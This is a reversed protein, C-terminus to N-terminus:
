SCQNLTEQVIANSKNTSAQSKPRRSFRAPVIMHSRYRRWRGPSMGVMRTFTRTFAAQDAFGAQGAIDALPERTETLLEKSREIRRQVIWRHASVGFSTKFSRAFHSISFGCERALHSLHLRAAVNLNLLETVRRKQWPALGGVSIPLRTPCEYNVQGEEPTTILKFDVQASM